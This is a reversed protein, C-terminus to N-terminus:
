RIFFRRFRSARQSFFYRRHKGDVSEMNCLHGTKLALEFFGMKRLKPKGKIKSKEERKEKEM